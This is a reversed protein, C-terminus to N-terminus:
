RISLMKKEAPVQLWNVIGLGGSVLSGIALGLVSNAVRGYIALYLSLGLGIWFLKQWQYSDYKKAIERRNAWISKARQSFPLMKRFLLPGIRFAILFGVFLGLVSIVSYDPASVRKYIPALLCGFLFRWLAGLPGVDLAVVARDFSSLPSNNM